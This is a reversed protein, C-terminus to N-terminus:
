KSILSYIASMIKINDYEFASLTKKIGSYLEHNDILKDMANAMEELPTIIGDKDNEIFEYASGFNTSVIPTGLIKAENIVYPCAESASTCALIDANAIYPYPNSREGLLVVQSQVEYKEINNKLLKYEEQKGVAPGVIYWKVNNSNKMQSIIKPIESFRKVSDIRGVSVVNILNNEYQVIHEQESSEKIFHSDLVNYIYQTNSAFEPYINLFSKRTYDSVCVIHNFCQYISSEKQGVIRLYSQYDCHIWAIKNPHLVESVFKTPIGESYAVVAQYRRKKVIQNAIHKMVFTIFRGGSLRNVVKATYGVVKKFGHLTYYNSCISSLLYNSELVNCNVFEGSYVGEPIIAFVDVEYKNIDFCNLTNQLARCIGGTGFSSVVYLVREKM